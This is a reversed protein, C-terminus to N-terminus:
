TAAARRTTSTMGHPRALRSATLIKVLGSEFYIRVVGMCCSVAAGDARTKRRPSSLSRPKLLMGDVPQRTRVGASSRLFLDPWPSPMRSLFSSSPSSAGIRDLRHRRARTARARWLLTPALWFGRGAIQRLARSYDARSSDTRGILRSDSVCSTSRPSLLDPRARAALDMAGPRVTSRARVMAGPDTAAPLSTMSCRPRKSHPRGAPEGLPRAQRHFRDPPVGSRNRRSAWEPDRLDSQSPCVKSIPGALAANACSLAPDPMSRNDIIPTGGVVDLTAWQGRRSCAPRAAPHPAAASRSGPHM